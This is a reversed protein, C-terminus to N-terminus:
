IIEGLGTKGSDGSAPALRELIRDSVLPKAIVELAGAKIAQKAIDRDSTSTLVIVPVDAPMTQLHRLFAICGMGPLNAETLVCGTAANPVVGSDLYDEASVFCKVETGSTRLLTILADHVAEDPDILFVTYDRARM